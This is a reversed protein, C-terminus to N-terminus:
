TRTPPARACWVHLENYVHVNPDTAQAL